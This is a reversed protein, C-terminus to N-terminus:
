KVNLKEKKENERRIKVEELTIIIFKNAWGTCNNCIEIKDLNQCLDCNGIKRPLKGTDIFYELDTRKDPRSRLGHYLEGDDGKDIFYGVDKAM